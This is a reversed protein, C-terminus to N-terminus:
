GSVCENRLCIEHVVNADDSDVRFNRLLDACCQLRRDVAKRSMEFDRLVASRAPVAQAGDRWLVAANEERVVTERALLRQRLGARNVNVGIAARAVGFIAAEGFFQAVARAGHFRVRPRLSFACSYTLSPRKSGTM